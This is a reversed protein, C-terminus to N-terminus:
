FHGTAPLRDTRARAAAAALPAVDPVLGARAQAHWWELEFQDVHRRQGLQRAADLADAETWAAVLWWAEGALVLSHKRERRARGGDYGVAPFELVHEARRLAEAVDAVAVARWGTDLRWRAGDRHVFYLTPGM